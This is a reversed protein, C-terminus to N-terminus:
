RAAAEETARSIGQCLLLDAHLEMWIDHYSDRMVGTFATDEGSRVRSLAAALRHAYRAFRDWARGLEGIVPVADSHLAGLETVVAADYDLDTHDNPAGDRLQWRTCLEKFRGNLPLFGDYGSRLGDRVGAPIDARLLNEHAARGEPTIRWFGRQALHTALGDAALRELVPVADTDACGALAALAPARAIGKVALAHLCEFRAPTM